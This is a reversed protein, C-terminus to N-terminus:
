SGAESGGQRTRAQMLFLAGIIIVDQVFHISWAWFFGGTELVSKALIFGLIGALIVGSVGSPLGRYHPLGFIVASLMCISAPELQGTMPVLLGVRCIMEEGFANSLSLLLVWGAGEPLHPGIGARRLDFYMVLATVVSIILGLSLGITGWREGNGIGFLALPKAPADISGFSFYNLFSVPAILYAAGLSLAACASLVLQYTLRADLDGDGTFKLQKRIKGSGAFLLFALLAVTTIAPIFVRTM